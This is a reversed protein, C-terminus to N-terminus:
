WRRTLEDWDLYVTGGDKYGKWENSRVVKGWANSCGSCDQGDTYDCIGIVNDDPQPDGTDWRGSMTRRGHPTFGLHRCGLVPVPVRPHPAVWRHRDPQHNATGPIDHVWVRHM